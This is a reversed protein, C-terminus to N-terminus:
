GGATGAPLEYKYVDLLQLRTANLRAALAAAVRRMFQFGFAPDKDCVDLLSRANIAVTRVDTIARASATMADPGLVPSWGLLEGAGLTQFRRPWQEPGLMELAVTGATVIFVHSLQEGERFLMSGAAYTETRTVPILLRLEEDTAPSLFALTRLFGPTIADSMADETTIEALVRAVAEAVAASVALSLGASPAASEGEITYVVVRRPLKGLTAALELAAALGIGHSSVSGAATLRPDPWEFRHLSGPPGAGRCADIVVLLGCNGPGDAVALPDSTADARVGSPLAGRLRTVVEWGVRDDGFPTGLGIVRARSNHESPM